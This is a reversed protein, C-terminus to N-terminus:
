LFIVMKWYNRQIVHNVKIYCPRNRHVGFMANYLSQVTSMSLVCCINEQFFLSFKYDSCVEQSDHHGVYETALLPLINARCCDVISFPLLEMYSFLANNKKKGWSNQSTFDPVKLVLM